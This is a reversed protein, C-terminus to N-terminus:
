VFGPAADSEDGDDDGGVNVDPTLRAKTEAELAARVEANEEDDLFAIAADRGQGLRLEEGNHTCFFYAGRRSAVGVTIAADILAGMRDIGKAYLMDFLVVGAPPGVKNKVVKAKIKIGAAPGDKAGDLFAKKRVDIRQSAYFKLAIGGSTTQM